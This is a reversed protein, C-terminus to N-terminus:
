KVFFTYTKYFVREKKKANGQWLMYYEKRVVITSYTLSPSFIVMRLLDILFNIAGHSNRIHTWKLEGQVGHESKRERFWEDFGEKEVAPITLVGIAYCKSRADTGSEDAYAIRPM